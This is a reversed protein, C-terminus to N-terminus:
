KKVIMRAEYFAAKIKKLHPKVILSTENAEFVNQFADLVKANKNILPDDFINTLSPIM